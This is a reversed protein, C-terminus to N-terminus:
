ENEPMLVVKSVELQSPYTEAELFNRPALAFPQAPCPHQAGNRNDDDSRARHFRAIVTFIGISVRAEM